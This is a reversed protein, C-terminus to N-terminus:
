ASAENDDAQRSSLSNALNTICLLLREFVDKEYLLVGAAWMHVLRAISCLYFFFGKVGFM